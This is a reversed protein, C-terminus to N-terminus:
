FDDSARSMLICGISIFTKAQAPEEWSIVRRSRFLSVPGLPVAVQIVIFNKIYGDISMHRINRVSSSGYAHFALIYLFFSNQFGPCLVNNHFTASGKM